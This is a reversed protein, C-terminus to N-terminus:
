GNLVKVKKDLWEACKDKDSFYRLDKHKDPDIYLGYYNTVITDGLQFSEEATYLGPEMEKEIEDASLTQIKFSMTTSRHKFTRPVVEYSETTDKHTISITVPLEDAYNAMIDSIIHKCERLTIKKLTQEKDM